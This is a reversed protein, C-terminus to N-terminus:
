QFLFFLHDNRTLIAESPAKEIYYYITLASNVEDTTASM